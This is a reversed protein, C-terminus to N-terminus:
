FPDTYEETASPSTDVKELIFWPWVYDNGLFHVGMESLWEVTFCHGVYSTMNPNWGGCFGGEDGSSERTIRVRDGPKLGSAEQNVSYTDLSSM